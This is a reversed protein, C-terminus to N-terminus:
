ISMPLFDLCFDRWGLTHLIEKKTDKLILDNIM